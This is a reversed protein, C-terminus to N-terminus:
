ISRKTRRSKRNDKENASKRKTKKFVLAVVKSQWTDEV